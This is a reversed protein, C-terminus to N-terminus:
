RWKLWERAGNYFHCAQNGFVPQLILALSQLNNLFVKIVKLEATIDLDSRTLSCTIWISKGSYEKWLITAGQCQEHTLSDAESANPMIGTIIPTHDKM